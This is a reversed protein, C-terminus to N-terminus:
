REHCSASCPHIGTIGYIGFILISLHSTDLIQSPKHRIVAVCLSWFHWSVNAASGRVERFTLDWQRVSRSPCCSFNRLYLLRGDRVFWTGQSELYLRHPPRLYCDVQHLLSIDSAAILELSDPGFSSYGNWPVKERSQFLEPVSKGM